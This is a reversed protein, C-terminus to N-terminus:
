FSNEKKYIYSTLHINELNVLALVQGSHLSEVSFVTNKTDDVYEITKRTTM